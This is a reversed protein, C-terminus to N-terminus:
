AQHIYSYFIYSVEWESLVKPIESGKSLLYRRRDTTVVKTGNGENEERVIDYPSFLTCSFTTELMMDKIVSKRYVFHPIGSLGAGKALEVSLEMSARGNVLAQMVGEIERKEREVVSVYTLHRTILRSVGSLRFDIDELRESLVAENRDVAQLMAATDKEFKLEHQVMTLVKQRLAETLATEKTMQEETPVGTIAHVIDGFINRKKRSLGKVKNLERVAVEQNLVHRYSEAAPDVMEILRSLVSGVERIKHAAMYKLLKAQYTDGYTDNRWLSLHDWIGRVNIVHKVRVRGDFEVKGGTGRLNGAVM